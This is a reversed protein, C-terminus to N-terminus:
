ITETTPWEKLGRGDWYSRMAASDGWGCNPDASDCDSYVGWKFRMTDSGRSTYTPVDPREQAERQDLRKLFYVFAAALGAFVMGMGLALVLNQAFVAYIVAKVLGFGGAAAYANIKKKEAGFVLLLLAINLLM